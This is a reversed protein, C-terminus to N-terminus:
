LFKKNKLTKEVDKALVRLEIPSLPSNAKVVFIGASSPLLMVWEKETRMALVDTKAFNKNVFDLISEGSRSETSGNGSSSFVLGKKPQRLTISNVLHKRKLCSLLEKAEKGRVPVHYNALVDQILAFQQKPVETKDFGLVKAAFLSLFNASGM